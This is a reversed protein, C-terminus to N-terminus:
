FESLYISGDEGSIDIFAFHYAGTWDEYGVALNPMDGYMVATVSLPHGPEMQYQINELTADIVEEGTEDDMCRISVSFLHVHMLTEDSYLVFQVKPTDEDVPELETYDYETYERESLDYDQTYAIKLGPEAAEYAEDFISSDYKMTMQLPYHSLEGYPVVNEASVYMRQGGYAVYARGSALVACNRVLTDAPLTGDPVSDYLSFYFEAGEGCNTILMASYMDAGEPVQVYKDQIYGQEGEYVAYVWGKGQQRCETLQAGLPVKRIRQASTRPEKRLSVWENCNVVEMNGYYANESATQAEAMAPLSALVMCLLLIWATGKKM